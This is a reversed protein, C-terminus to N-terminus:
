LGPFVRPWHLPPAALSPYVFETELAADAPPETWDAVEGQRRAKATWNRKDPKASLDTKIDITM